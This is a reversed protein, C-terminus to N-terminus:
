KEKLKKYNTATPLNKGRKKEEKKTGANFWNQTVHTKLLLYTISQRGLIIAFRHKNEHSLIAFVLLCFCALSVWLLKILLTKKICQPKKFKVWFQPNPLKKESFNVQVFTIDIKFNFNEARFDSQIQNYFLHWFQNSSVLSWVKLIRHIKMFGSYNKIKTM